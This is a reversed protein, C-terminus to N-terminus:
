SSVPYSCDMHNRTSLTSNHIFPLQCQIIGHLLLQLSDSLLLLLQTTEPANLIM